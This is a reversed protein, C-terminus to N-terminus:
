PVCIKLPSRKHGSKLYMKRVAKVLELPARTKEAIEEDKLGVDFMYYLIPDIVDYEAGLEDMAKHGPWLDPSSPKWAIDEPIGLYEALMRVQTKYLGLLPYLDAAADGWKTFYGLLWESRDGSGVVLRNEKNAYYYLLIMRVRAKVNAKPIRPATEYSDGSLRLVAEVISTIDIRVVDKLGLISVVREADEIGKKSSEKDPMLLVKVREVGLARVSLSTITSSDVGGSLGIVVGNAGAEDVTRKICEILKKATKELDIRLFDPVEYRPM